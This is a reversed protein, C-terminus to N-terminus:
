ITGCLRSALRASWVDSLAVFNSYEYYEEYREYDLVFLGERKLLYVRYGREEFFRMTGYLTEGALQWARNYEFQVVGAAARDLVGRAGRVVRADFGEADIKLMDVKEWGQEALVRDITTVVVSRTTGGTAGFGPVLTSGRGADDEEHFSMMGPADGAAADIVRIRREGGFRERLVALASQSPELAIAEFAQDGKLRAIGATWDGVNAGVDVFRTATAAVAERLWVEGTENVDPSEALHYKIVCRAQNRVLVALRVLLASRGAVRQLRDAVGRLARKM